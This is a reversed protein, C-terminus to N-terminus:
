PAEELPNDRLFRSFRISGAALVVLGAGLLPWGPELGLVVTLGGFGFLALAYLGLRPISLVAAALGGALAVLFSPLAPVLARFAESTGVRVAWFWTAIALLLTGVGVGILAGYGQKEARERDKSFRVLGARPEVWRRRAPAWLPILLPPLLGSFAALPSLWGLGIGTVAVGVFLDLLGDDLRTRYLSRELTEPNTLM